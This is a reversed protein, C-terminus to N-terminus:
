KVKQYGLHKVVKVCFGDLLEEEAGPKLLVTRADCRFHAKSADDLGFNQATSFKLPVVITFKMNDRTHYYFGFGDEINFHKYVVKLLDDPAEPGYTKAFGAPKKGEWFLDKSGDELHRLHAAVPIIPATIIPENMPPVMPPTVIPVNEAPTPVNEVFNQQIPELESAKVATKARPM